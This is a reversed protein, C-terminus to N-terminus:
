IMLLIPILFNILLSQLSTISRFQTKKDLKKKIKKNKYNSLSQVMIKYM